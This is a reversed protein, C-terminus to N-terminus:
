AGFTRLVRLATGAKPVSIILDVNTIEATPLGVVITLQDVDDDQQSCAAAAVPVVSFAVEARVFRPLRCYGVQM